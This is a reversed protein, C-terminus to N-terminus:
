EHVKRREFFARGAGPNGLYEVNVRSNRELIGQKIDTELLTVAEYSASLKGKNVNIVKNM